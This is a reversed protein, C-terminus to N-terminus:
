AQFRFVLCEGDGEAGVDAVVVFRDFEEAFGAVDLENEAAVSVHLVAHIVCSSAVDTGSCDASAPPVSGVFAETGCEGDEVQLRVSGKGVVVDVPFASVLVQNGSLAEM